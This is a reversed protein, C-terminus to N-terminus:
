RKGGRKRRRKPLTFNLKGATIKRSHDLNSRGNTTGWGKDGGRRGKKKEEEEGVAM